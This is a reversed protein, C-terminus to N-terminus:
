LIGYESDIVASYQMRTTIENKFGLAHLRFLLNDSFIVLFVVHRLLLAGLFAPCAYFTQPVEVINEFFYCGSEPLALGM